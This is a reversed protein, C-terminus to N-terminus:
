QQLFHTVKVEQQKICIKGHFYDVLVKFQLGAGILYKKSILTAKIM